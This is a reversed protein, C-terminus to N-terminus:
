PRLVLRWRAEGTADADQAVVTVWVPVALGARVGRGELRFRLEADAGAGGALEVVLPSAADMARPGAPTEVLVRVGAPLEGEHRVTLTRRGAPMGLALPAVVEARGAARHTVRPLAASTVAAQLPPAAVVQARVEMAAQAGLPAAAAALLAALAPAILHRM